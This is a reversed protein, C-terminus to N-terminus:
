GLHDVQDRGTEPPRFIPGLSSRGHHQLRDAGVSRPSLRRGGTTAGPLWTTLSAAALAKRSNRQPTHHSAQAPLPPAAIRISTALSCGCSSSASARAASPRPSSTTARSTRTLATAWTALS